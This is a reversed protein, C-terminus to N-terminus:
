TRALLTSLKFPQGIIRCAAQLLPQFTYLGDFEIGRNVFDDVRTTSSGIRKDDASASAFAFNYAASLQPLADPKILDPIVVFGNTQLEEIVNTSLECDINIVSFWDKM